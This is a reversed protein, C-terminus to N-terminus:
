VVSKRDAELSPLSEKRPMTRGSIKGTFLQELRRVVLKKKDKDPMSVHRALLRDSTDLLESEVKPDSSSMTRSFSLQPRGNLSPGTSSQPAHSRRASMSAYASDVPRSTTSSYSAHKALSDRSAYLDKLHKGPKSRRENSTTESSGELSAAFDRLTAELERKKGGPLGHFKIEFLKDKKMMDPMFQKYRKLEEKLRKNEVTLDDIVSRYDDATSSQDAVAPRSLSHGPVTQGYQTHTRPPLELENSSDTEQQYFPPDVDMNHGLDDYTATVTKNSKNFWNNPDSRRTDNSEGSSNRRATVAANPGVASGKATLTADRALRHHHLTVSKEADTRRPWPHGRETWAPPPQIGHTKPQRDAM